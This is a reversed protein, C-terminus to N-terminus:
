RDVYYIKDRIIKRASNSVTGGNEIRQVNPSLCSMSKLCEVQSQVFRRACSMNLTNQCVHDM